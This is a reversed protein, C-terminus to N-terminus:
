DGDCGDLCPSGYQDCDDESSSRDMDNNMCSDYQCSAFSYMCGMTCDGVSDDIVLSTYCGDGSSGFTWSLSALDGQLGSDSEAVNYLVKLSLLDVVFSLIVLVVLLVLFKKVSEKEAM